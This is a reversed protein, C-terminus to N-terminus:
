QQKNETPLPLAIVLTTGESPQSSVHLEGGHEQVIKRTLSLGLGTGTRKTTFFTDFIQELHEEPIGEGTDSVYVEVTEAIKRAGIQLRGGDPMAELANKTLNLMVQHLQREDVHVEPLDEEVQIDLEVGGAEAEQRIMNSISTIIPEINHLVLDPKSPKTFDLLSQLIQELREVEEIIIRANRQTTDKKDPQRSIARAFGGITSLPNRIEHAVIATVEGITTLKEAHVIEQQQPSLDDMRHKYLPTVRDLITELDRFSDGSENDVFIEFLLVITRPVGSTLRRM